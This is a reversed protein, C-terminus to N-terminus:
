LSLLLLICCNINKLKALALINLEFDSNKLILSGPLFDYINFIGYGIVIVYAYM